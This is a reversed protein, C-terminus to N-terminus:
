LVCPISYPPVTAWVKDCIPLRCFIDLLDKLILITKHLCARGSSRFQALRDYKPQTFTDNQFSLSPSCAQTDLSLIWFILLTHHHVEILPIVKFPCCSLVIFHICPMQSLDFTLSISNWSCYHLCQNNGANTRNQGECTQCWSKTIVRKTKQLGLKKFISMVLTQVM